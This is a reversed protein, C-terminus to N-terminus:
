TTRKLSGDSQKVYLEGGRFVCFRLAATRTTFFAFASSVCDGTKDLWLVAWPGLDNLHM